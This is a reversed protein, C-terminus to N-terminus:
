AVGRAHAGHTSRRPVRELRNWSMLKGRGAYYKTGRVEAGRAYRRPGRVQMGDGKQGMEQNMM